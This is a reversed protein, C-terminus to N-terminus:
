SEGVCRLYGEPAVTIQLKSEIERDVRFRDNGALFERVATKPNREKSWPRDISADALMDEIVTDLVVLYSGETVLPSYAQLEALVHEHTHLSDLVVLVPERDEVLRGVEAVIAPDTSSGELMTIRKSM